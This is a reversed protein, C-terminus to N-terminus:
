RPHETALFDLACLRLGENVSIPPSWGLLAETKAIDVQLSACLKRLVAQKGLLAAGATLLGQPVPLLRAPCGLAAGLRRLLETTSLDEGDSVLFTQDAAAPHDICVILLDILNGLALLSRKNDIAGLPLPVGRVLWGMMSRFNAKVGPGYVLPPRIIVVEMGTQAAVVRLGDEAERKSVGYPDAPAPTDSAFFPQGPASTEGNVKVSSVFVFRRVGAQAAQRALNLTGDVNIRRFESLPDIAADNMVHVRAAAHLLVDVGTLAARWDQAAGLDGLAQYDIGPLRDAPLRRVLGRLGFRRCELLAALLAHGVFGTAGTVALQMM